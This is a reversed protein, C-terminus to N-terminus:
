KSVHKSAQKGLHTHRKELPLVFVESVCRAEELQGVPVIEDSELAEHGSHLESDIPGDNPQARQRWEYACRCTLRASQLYAWLGLWLGLGLEAPLGM